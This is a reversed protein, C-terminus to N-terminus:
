RIDLKIMSLAKECIEMAQKPDAAHAIVFGVRDVSSRLEKVEDGIEKTVEIETVGSINMAKDIGEIGYFVGKEAPFYRIAVGQTPKRSLDPVEGLAIKICAEIMKVGICIPIMTSAVNDGPMRAGLEVLKPGADTVKIEVHAASNDIGIARVADAAVRKISELTEAPLQSPLSHGIEVCYPVGATMKDLITMVHPEGKYVIFDISVEPGKMYEELLVTGTTSYPLSYYFAKTTDKKDEVVMVGRSGSSDSPKLIYPPEIDAVAANLEEESRIAKFWPHPINHEKFCKIMEVKDTARIAVDYPIAPLNHQQAVAAVSRMPLDTAITIVGDPKFEKSIELIKKIDNTSCEYFVDAFDVGVAKPNMDVVGTYLGMERAIKICPTQLFSAGLVLIKKM